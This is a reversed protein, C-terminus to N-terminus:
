TGAEEPTEAQATLALLEAMVTTEEWHEETWEEASSIDSKCKYLKKGNTCYDGAEYTGEHNYPLAIMSPIVGLGAQIEKMPGSEEAPNIRVGNNFFHIGSMATMADETILNGYGKLIEQMEIHGGTMILLNENVDPQKIDEIVLGFATSDNALVGYRSVPTGKKIPFEFTHYRMKVIDTKRIRM